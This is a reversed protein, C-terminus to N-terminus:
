LYSEVIKPTIKKNQKNKGLINIHFSLTGFLIIKLSNLYDMLYECLNLSTPYLHIM